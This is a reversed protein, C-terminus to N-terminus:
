EDLVSKGVVTTDRKQLLRLQKKKMRKIKNPNKIVQYVEAKLANEATRKANYERRKRLEVQQEKREDRLQNELDKVSKMKQRKRMRVAYSDRDIVVVSSVKTRQEKWFRGSKPLGRPAPRAKIVTLADVPAADTAPDRRSVDEATTKAPVTPASGLIRQIDALKKADLAPTATATVTESATAKDVEMVCEGTPASSNEAKACKQEENTVPASEDEGDREVDGGKEGEETVAPLAESDEAKYRALLSKRHSRSRATKEAAPSASAAPRTTASAPDTVSDSNHRRRSSTAQLTAPSAATAHATLSTTRARAAPSRKDEYRKSRTSVM